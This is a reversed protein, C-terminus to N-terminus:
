TNNIIIVLRWANSKIIDLDVTRYLHVDKPKDKVKVQENGSLSTINLWSKKFSSNNIAAVM